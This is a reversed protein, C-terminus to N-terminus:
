LYYLQHFALRFIALPMGGNSIMFRSFSWNAIVIIALMAMTLLWLAPVVIFTLM